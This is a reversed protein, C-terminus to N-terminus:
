GHHAVPSMSEEQVMTIQQFGSGIIVTFCKVVIFQSLGLQDLASKPCLNIRGQNVSALFSLRHGNALIRSTAKTM